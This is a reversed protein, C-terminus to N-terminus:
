DHTHQVRSQVYRVIRDVSDLNEPVTDQDPVRFAYREEIFMVLELVGMSDIVGNSTLSADGSLHEGDLIFNETIFGRVDREIDTM